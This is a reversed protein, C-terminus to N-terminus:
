KLEEITALIIKGIGFVMSILVFFLMCNYGVRPYKAEEPLTPAEVVVLYKLQRYAEIRSKELSVQSSAYAEIAFELNMKYEGFKAIIENVGLSQGKTEIDSSKSLRTLRQREHELQEQLSQLQEKTQMVMPATESMSSRLTRLESKKAAIQSEIGYAIQQLAMGEAEPDLLNYQQQFSLLASKAQQLKNMVLDHEHQAFALQAKALDHGIKNIYQEAHETIAITLQQAFEPEFGQAKVTFVSSQDDIEVLVHKQFYELKKELSASSSLRSFVDHDKSAYHQSLELKQELFELMDNSYIFAQLLQTDSGSSMGGAFGSLLALKPELTTMGNPQQIIMQAHSEYRSSAWIIQYLAFLLFPIIVCAIFPRMLWRRWYQWQKVSFQSEPTQSTNNSEMSRTSKIVPENESSSSQMLEPKKARLQRNLLTIRQNIADSPKLNRVRQLLRIALPLNSEKIDEIKTLLFEADMWQGKELSTKFEALENELSHQSSQTM